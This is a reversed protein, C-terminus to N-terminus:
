GGPCLVVCQAHRAADPRPRAEKAEFDKNIKALLAVLSRGSAVEVTCLSVSISVQRGGKGFEACRGNPM